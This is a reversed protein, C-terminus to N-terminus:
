SKDALRVGFINLLSMKPKKRKSNINWYKLFVGVVEMNSVIIKPALVVRLFIITYIVKM